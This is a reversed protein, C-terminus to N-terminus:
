SRWELLSLLLASQVGLQPGGRAVRGDRPEGPFNTGLPPQKRLAVLLGSSPLTLPLSTPLSLSLSACTHAPFHASDSAVGSPHLPLPLCPLDQFFFILCSILCSGTIGSKSVSGFSGLHIDVGGSDYLM